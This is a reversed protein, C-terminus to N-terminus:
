GVFNLIRCLKQLQKVTAKNKSLVEKIADIAQDKKDLPLALLRNRGDLLIGLFIVMEDAWVTKDLSVPVGLEQCLDLFQQIMWNCHVITWAIFLFDDWYNTIHNQANTRYEILHCLADSFYQFLACSISAGFPLCKDVFFKWDKTIPDKAKM